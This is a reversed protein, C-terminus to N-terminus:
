ELKWSFSGNGASGTGAELVWMRLQSHFWGSWLWKVLLSLHSIHFLSQAAFCSFDMRSPLSLLSGWPQVTDRKYWAGSNGGFSRIMKCISKTILLDQVNSDLLLHISIFYSNILKYLQCNRCLFKDLFLPTEQMQFTSFEDNHM